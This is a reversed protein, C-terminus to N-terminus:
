RASNGNGPTAPQFFEALGPWWGDPLLFFFLVGYTVAATVIILIFGLLPYRDAASSTEVQDIPEDAIDATKIAHM